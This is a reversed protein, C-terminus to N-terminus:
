TTKGKIRESIVRYIFMPNGIVYRKFLRKPEKILRYFWEFGLNTIWSPSQKNIGSIWDLYAGGNLFINATLQNMNDLIWKEQMPMGFGVILIDTKFNNIKEIVM